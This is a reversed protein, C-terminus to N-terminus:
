RSCAIGLFTGPSSSFPRSKDYLGSIETVIGFGYDLSYICFRTGCTIRYTIDDYNPPNPDGGAVCTSNITAVNSGVYRFTQPRKWSGSQCILLCCHECSWKAPWKRVHFVMYTNNIDWGTITERLHNGCIGDM